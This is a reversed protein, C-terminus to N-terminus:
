TEIPRGNYLVNQIKGFYSKKIEVKQVQPYYMEIVSRVAEKELQSENILLAIYSFFFIFSIISGM